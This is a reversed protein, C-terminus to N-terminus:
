KLGINLGLTFARARPYNTYDIGLTHVGGMEAFTNVEPDYGTYGTIVFLNDASLYVRLSRFFDSNFTYGLTVNQLRVFSGDEIFRDSWGTTKDAGMGDAVDDVAGQLLNIGNFVNSPRQYEMATNNLIDNGVVAQVFVRFDWNKYQLMSTFGLTWDPRANGLIFRGDNLPGAEGQAQLKALEDPDITLIENGESDYGLFKPGFFTGTPEGPIVIQSQTDSLGAGSVTGTVIFDGPERLKTVENKNTAFNLSTRWFWDGASKNITNLAIELGQNSVEGVNDIRTTVVAPQPVVIELLLDKTTKDYLDISGSIRNDLFGFDIGFDIQTTEEWKLDPNALQTASVGTLIQDGIVYNAGPGLIVLSNYNGIDQNGAIGYSLRLKLDHLSGMDSMFSEESLRWGLSASPFFGWKNDEGFRSSGEERVAVQFLYKDEINYIARGLFSILRNKDRFSFPRITFDAGGAINNYTWANTVYDRGTAGFGSNEFEQFTYGAWAELTHNDSIDTKYNFTTEFLANQRKNSSIEARGGFAAAFPLTTPLYQNRTADTNDLGVNIKGTLGPLFDYEATANAFVRTTETEDAIEKLLAVPNRIEPNDPEWYSGDDLYVRQTPDMKYVNTFVGGFYGATQNYPTNQRTIYSPNLRLGLRLKGDLMNHNLNLRIAIRERASNLVIGEENLYNLSVLYSTNFTGSSFSLSHSHAIANRVIEDQWDTDYNGLAPTAGVQNAFARYESATLFDLKKSQSSVSTYGDYSLALGGPQGKKTTIQIVGNGGRAGYIAAASADKLIDISAIDNPNLMSLANDRTGATIDTIGEPMASTNDIPVGDIVYLPENSASV